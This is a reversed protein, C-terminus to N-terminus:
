RFVRKKRAEARAEAVARAVAIDVVRSLLATLSAREAEADDGTANLRDRAENVAKEIPDENKM